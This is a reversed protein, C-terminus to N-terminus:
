ISRAAQLMEPPIESAGATCAQPTGIAIERLRDGDRMIFLTQL